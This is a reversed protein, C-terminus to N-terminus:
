PQYITVIFQLTNNKQKKVEKVFFNFEYFFFSHRLIKQKLTQPYNISFLSVTKNNFLERDDAQGNIYFL